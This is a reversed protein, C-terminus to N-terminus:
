KKNKVKKQLNKKRLIKKQFKPKLGAKIRQLFEDIKVYAVGIYSDAAGYYILLTDDKIIAGSAYVVGPKFGNNEYIESPELVPEKSSYLIKTPDHFDLVMALVKYKGPDRIDMAHYFVLWGDKIEIPPPGAGRKIWRNDWIKPQYFSQLYEGKEFKLSKRYSILIEPSISTIIAYKGNIKKPFIVWNKQIQGPSSILEAPSWKWREQLFDKVKIWTLAMGLGKDCATYTMYLTDEKDVRVIRPDEYGGFSGGSAFSFVNFSPSTIEQGYIPYSLRKTIKLGDDSFAYGLRSIGDRGIARYLLHIKNDLLIVGPNFTQWAEWNNEGRPAIIPNDESKILVSVEKPKLRTIRRKRKLTKTKLSARRKKGRLNLVRTAKSRLAKIGRSNLLKKKSKLSIIRKKRKTIVMKKKIKLSIKNKSKSRSLVTKRKKTKSFSPKKKQKKLNLRNKIKTKSKKSGRLIKVM